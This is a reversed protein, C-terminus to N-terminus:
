TCLVALEAGEAIGAPMVVVADCLALAGGIFEDARVVSPGIGEIPPQHLRRADGADLAEFRLLM